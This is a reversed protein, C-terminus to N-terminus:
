TVSQLYALTQRVVELVPEEVDTLKDAEAFQGYHPDITVTGDFGSRDLAGLLEAHPVDDRGPVAMTAFSGDPAARAGKVHIHAIHGAIQDFVGPAWPPEGARWGNVM